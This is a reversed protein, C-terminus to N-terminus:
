EIHGDETLSMNVPLGMIKHIAFTLDFIAGEAARLDGVPGWCYVDTGVVCTVRVDYPNEVDELRDALERLRESVEMAGAIPVVKLKEEKM